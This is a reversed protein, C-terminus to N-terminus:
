EPWDVSLLMEKARPVASDHSTGSPAYQCFAHKPNDHPFYGIVWSEFKKGHPVTGTKAAIKLKNDPDIGSATGDAAAMIMGKAIRRFTTDRLKVSFPRGGADGDDAPMAANRLPPVQGATAFIAALRLLQLANPKMDDSLGLAYIPAAHSPRTPFAGCKFGAVPADLGFIRAYQIISAPGAHRTAKAFFVNCSMAIADELTVKGHAVRCHFSDPGVQVSGTCEETENPNFIGEELICAATVLKMVSGPCSSPVLLGSPFGINGNKLDAWFFRGSAKAVTPEAQAKEIALSGPAAGGLGFMSKLFRRRGISGPRAAQDASKGEESM